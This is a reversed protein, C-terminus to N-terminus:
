TNELLKRITKKELSVLSESCGLEAAIQELTRGAVTLDAVRRQRATLNAYLAELVAGVEGYEVLSGHHLWIVKNCLRRIIAEAHSAVILIGSQNGAKSERRVFAM